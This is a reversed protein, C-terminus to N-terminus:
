QTTSLHTSTIPAVIGKSTIEEKGFVCFISDSESNTEKTNESDNGIVAHALPYINGDIRIKRIEINISM